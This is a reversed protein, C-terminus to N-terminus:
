PAGFRLNDDSVTRKQADYAYLQLRLLAKETAHYVM